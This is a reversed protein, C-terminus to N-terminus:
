VEEHTESRLRTSSLHASKDQKEAAEDNCRALLAEERASEGVEVLAAFRWDVADEEAGSKRGDEDAKAVKGAQGEKVAHTASGPEARCQASLRQMCLDGCPRPVKGGHYPQEDQPSRFRSELPEDQRREEGRRKGQEGRRGHLGYRVKRTVGIRNALVASKRMTREQKERGIWDNAANAKQTAPMTGNKRCTRCLPSSWSSKSFSSYQRFM